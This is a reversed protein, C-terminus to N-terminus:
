VQFNCVKFSGQLLILFLTVHCSSRHNQHFAGYENFCSTLAVLSIILGEDRLTGILTTSKVTFQFSCPKSFARLLIARLKSRVYAASRRYRLLGSGGDRPSWPM